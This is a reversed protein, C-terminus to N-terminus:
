GAQGARKAEDSVLRTPLDPYTEKQIVSIQEIM